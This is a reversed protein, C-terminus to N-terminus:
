ERKDPEIERGGRRMEMPPYRRPIGDGQVPELPPVGICVIREIAKLAAFLDPMKLCDKVAERERRHAELEDRLRALDLNSQLVIMRQIEPATQDWRELIHDAEVKPVEEATTWM